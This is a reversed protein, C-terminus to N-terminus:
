TMAVLMRIAALIRNKFVSLATKMMRIEQIYIFLSFIYMMRRNLKNNM